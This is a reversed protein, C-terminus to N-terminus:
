AEGGHVWQVEDEGARCQDEDIEHRPDDRQGGPRVTPLLNELTTQPDNVRKAPM